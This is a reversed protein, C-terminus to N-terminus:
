QLIFIGPKYIKLTRNSFFFPLLFNLKTIIKLRKKLCMFEGKKRYPVATVKLKTKLTIFHYLIAYIKNVNKDWFLSLVPVIQAPIWITGTGTNYTVIWIRSRFFIEHKM